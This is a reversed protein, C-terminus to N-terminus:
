RKVIEVFKVLNPNGGRNTGRNKLTQAGMAQFSHTYIAIIGSKPKKNHM